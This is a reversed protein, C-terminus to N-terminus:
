GDLWRNLAANFQEGRAVADPGNVAAEAFLTIPDNVLQGDVHWHPNGMDGDEDDCPQVTLGVNTGPSALHIVIGISTCAAGETLPTPMMRYTSIHSIHRRRVTTITAILHEASDPGNSTSLTDGEWVLLRGGAIVVVTTDTTLGEDVLDINDVILFDVLDTEEACAVLQRFILRGLEGRAHLENHLRNAVTVDM